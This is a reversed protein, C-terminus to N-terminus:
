KNPNERAKKTPNELIIKQNLLQGWKEIQSPEPKQMVLYNKLIKEINEKDEPKIILMLRPPFGVFNELYLITQNFETEVWFRGLQDWLFFKNITYLGKNTIRHEINEPKIIDIIYSFFFFAVIALILWIQKLFLLIVCVLFIIAGLNTYFEKSHKKYIRSPSIWALLTKEPEPQIVQTTLEDQFSTKSDAM